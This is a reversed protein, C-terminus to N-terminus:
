VSPKGRPFLKKLLQSETPKSEPEIAPAEKKDHTLMQLLQRREQEARDLRQRLDNVSERERELQERLLANDRKYDPTEIPRNPDLVQGKAPYVRFLEAPDIKYQGLDDKSASMRGSKIANAITTKTKGTAISAQGLTLM